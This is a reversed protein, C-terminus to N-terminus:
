HEHDHGDHSHAHNSAPAHAQVSEVSNDGDTTADGDTGHDDNDHPHSRSMAPLHDAAEVGHDHGSDDHQSDGTTAPAHHGYGKAEVVLKAYDASTLNDASQLFAVVPWIAEPAHTKGFAPMGTMRIGNKIIWFQEAATGHEALAALDPPAPNLGQTLIGPSQGPEGHCQACMGVYDSVGALILARDDLNPVAIDRAQRQVSKEMTTHLLWSLLPGDKATAAVNFLGSQVYGYLSILGIIIFIFGVKLYRM